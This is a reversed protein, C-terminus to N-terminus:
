KRILVMLCKMPFIFSVPIVGTTKKMRTNIKESGPHSKMSNRFLKETDEHSVGPKFRLEGEIKYIAGM